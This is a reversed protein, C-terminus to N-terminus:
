LAGGIKQISIVKVRTVNSFDLIREDSRRVRSGDVHSLMLIPVSILQLEDGVCEIDYLFLLEDIRHASSLDEILRKAVAIEDASLVNPQPDMWYDRLERSQFSLEM